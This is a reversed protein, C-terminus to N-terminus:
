AQTAKMTIPVVYPQRCALANNHQLVLPRPPAQVRLERLLAKYYYCLLDCFGVHCNMIGSLFLRSVTKNALCPRLAERPQALSAKPRLSCVLSSLTSTHPPPTQYGKHLGCSSGAGVYSAYQWCPLVCALSRPLAKSKGPAWLCNTPSPAHSQWLHGHTHDQSPRPTPHMCM